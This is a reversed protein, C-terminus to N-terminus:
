DHHHTLRALAVTFDKFPEGNHDVGDRHLVADAGDHWYLKICNIYGTIGTISDKVFDGPKFGKM